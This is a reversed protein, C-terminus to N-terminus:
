QKDGELTHAHKNPTNKSLISSITSIFANLESWQVHALRQQM